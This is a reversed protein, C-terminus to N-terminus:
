SRLLCNCLFTKHFVLSTIISSINHLFFVLVVIYSVAYPLHGKWFVHHSDITCTVLMWSSLRSKIALFLFISTNTRCKIDIILTVKWIRYYMKKLSCGAKITKILRTIFIYFMRWFFERRKNLFLYNM